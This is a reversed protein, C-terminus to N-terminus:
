EHYGKEKLLALITNEPYKTCWGRHAAVYINKTSQKWDNM